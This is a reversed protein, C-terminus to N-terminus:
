TRKPVSWPNTSESLYVQERATKWVAISKERGAVAATVNAISKSSQKDLLHPTVYSKSTM